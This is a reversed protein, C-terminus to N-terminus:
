HGTLFLVAISYATRPYTALVLKIISKYCINFYIFFYLPYLPTSYDLDPIDVTPSVKRFHYFELM